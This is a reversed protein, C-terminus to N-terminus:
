SFVYREVAYTKYIKCLRLINAQCIGMQNILMILGWVLRNFLFGNM